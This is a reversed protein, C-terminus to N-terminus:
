NEKRRKIIHKFESPLRGECSTLHITQQIPQIRTSVASLLSKSVALSNSFPHCEHFSVVFHHLTREFISHSVLEAHRMVYRTKSCEEVIYSGLCGDRCTVLQKNQNVSKPSVLGNLRTDRDTNFHFHCHDKRLNM